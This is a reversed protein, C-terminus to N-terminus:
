QCTELCDYDMHCPNHSSSSTCGRNEWAVENCASDSSSSGRGRLLGPDAAAGVVAARPGGGELVPAM